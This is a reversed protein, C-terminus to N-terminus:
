VRSNSRSRRKVKFIITSISVTAIIALIVLVAITNIIFISTNVFLNIKPDYIIKITNSKINHLNMGLITRSAHEFNMLHDEWAYENSITIESTYEEDQTRVKFTNLLKFIAVQEAIRLSYFPLDEGKIISAAPYSILDYNIRANIGIYISYKDPKVKFDIDYLNITIDVKITVNFKNISTYLVTSNVEPIEPIFWIRFRIDAKASNGIIKPSKIMAELKQELEMRQKQVLRLEQELAKLESQTQNLQQELEQKGDEASQIEEEISKITENLEEILQIYQQEIEQIEEIEKEVAQIEEPFILGFSEGHEYYQSRLKLGHVIYDFYYAEKGNYTRKKPLTIEIKPLNCFYGIFYVDDLIKKRRILMSNNDYREYEFTLKGDGNTDNYVILPFIMTTIPVDVCKCEDGKGIMTPFGTGIFPEAITYTGGEEYQYGAGVGVSLNTSYFRGLYIENVREFKDLDIVSVGISMESTYAYNDKVEIDYVRDKSPISKVVDLKNPSSIRVLHLGFINDGVLISNKSIKEIAMTCKFKHRAILTPKAKDKVDYVLIGKLGAAIYAHNGIVEIDFACANIITSSVIKLASTDIIIFQGIENVYYLYKDKLSFSTIFSVSPKGEDYTKGLIAPIDISTIKTPSKPNSIDLVLIRDYFALFALNGTAFIGEIMDSYKHNYVL